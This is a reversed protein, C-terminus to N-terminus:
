AVYPSAQLTFLAAYRGGLAMLEDHDGSEVLEGREMVLIRDATRVTSFRHSIMLVTRGASIERLDDFLAREAVPDLASSPEDLILM